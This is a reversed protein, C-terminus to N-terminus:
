PELDEGTPPTSPTAQAILEISRLVQQLELSLSSSSLLSHQELYAGLKALTTKGGGTKPEQTWTCIWGQVPYTTHVLVM